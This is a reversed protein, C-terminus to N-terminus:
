LPLNNLALSFLILSPPLLTYIFKNLEKYVCFHAQLFLLDKNINLSWTITMIKVNAIWLFMCGNKLLGKHFTWTTLLTCIFSFQIVLHQVNAEQCWTLSLKQKQSSHKIVRVWCSLAPKGHPQPSNRALFKPFPPRTAHRGIEEYNNSETGLVM